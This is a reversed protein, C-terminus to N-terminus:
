ILFPQCLECLYYHYENPHNSSKHIDELKEELRKMTKDHSISPIPIKIRIQTYKEFFEIVSQSTKISAFSNKGRLPLFLTCTFSGDLNPLAILMFEGRPWIHLSNSDLSYDGNMDARNTFEKYSNDLAKLLLSIRM